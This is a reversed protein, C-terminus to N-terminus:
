RGFAQLLHLDIYDIPLWAHGNLGWNVGWSNRVLLYQSGNAASGLGVAIVAHASNPIIMPSFAVVGNVPATMTLTTEIILGVVHGKQLEAVIADSKRTIERLGSRYMTASPLAVPVAVTTTSAALYPFDTELPQGPKDVVALVPALRLASGAIWGPSIAGAHQYLYETSLVDPAPAVHRNVDSVAFALCTPRQGQHRAPGLLASHDVVSLIM